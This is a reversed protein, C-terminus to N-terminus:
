CSVRVIKLWSAASGVPMEGVLSKLSKLMEQHSLCRGEAQQLMWRKTSQGISRRGRQLATAIHETKLESSLQTFGIVNGAPNQDDESTLGPKDATM